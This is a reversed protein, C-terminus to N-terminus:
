GYRYILQLSLDIPNIISTLGGMSIRDVGTSAYETLNKMNIGGSSELLVGRNKNKERIEVAERTREISFNDLLIIDPGESLAWQFEKINEVEIEVPINKQVSKRTRRIIEKIIKESDKSKRQMCYARIHNEKILVMDWLGKRHNNGGGCVVAYKQFYRQLPITKRTDFIKARTDSVMDVACRTRTSVGSLMSLYNLATREAKMISSASGEVFAIEQNPHIKQGDEVLPRCRLSCDVCSFVREVIEIGCVIGESRSIIVGDANFDKDILARSTVDGRGIDEKIAFKIIRDVRKRDLKM